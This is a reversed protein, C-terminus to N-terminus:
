GEFCQIPDLKNRICCRPVLGANSNLDMPSRKGRMKSAKGFDKDYAVAKFGTLKAMTAIRAVGAFYEIVQYGDDSLVGMWSVLIM